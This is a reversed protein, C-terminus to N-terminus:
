QGGLTVNHGALFRALMVLDATRIIGQTISDSTVRAAEEVITVNHGALFRALLVLDATGVNGSGSVSGLVVAVQETKQWVWTDAMTEGDFNAMLEASTFVYAGEPNDVTGAGVNQWRGTFQTNTPPEPLAANASQFHFSPGLVLERLSVTGYFMNEMNTVNSTNFGSLDLRLLSSARRFMGRTSYLNNYDVHELGEISVLSTLDSFMFQIDGRPIITGSFIIREVSDRHPLLPNADIYVGNVLIPNGDRGGVDIGSLEIGGSDVVVMGCDYLRWIAGARIRTHFANATNRETFNGSIAVSCDAISCNICDGVLREPWISYFAHTFLSGGWTVTGAYMTMTQGAPITFRFHHGAHDQRAYVLQTQGNYLAPFHHRNIDSWSPEGHVIVGGYSPATITIPVRASVGGTIVLVAPEDRTLTVTGMATTRPIANVTVTTTPGELWTAGHDLSVRITYVRRMIGDNRPFILDALMAPPLGGQFPTQMYLPEGTGNLFAAVRMLGPPLNDGVVRIRSTGGTQPVTMANASVGTVVVVGTAVIGGSQVEYPEAELPPQSLYYLDYNAEIIYDIKEQENYLYAEDCATNALVQSFSSIIMLASLAIATLGKTTCIRM